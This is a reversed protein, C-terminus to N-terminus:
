LEYCSMTFHKVKIMTQEYAELYGMHATKGLLLLECHQALSCQAMVKEYPTRPDKQGIIFLVPVKSNALSNLGSERKMMGKMAAIIDEKKMQSARTKLVEIQNKLRKQNEEAFLDPIFQTVFGTHNNEIAKIARKRNEIGQEDDALAHSHFFGFGKLQKNHKEAFAATVYGGMSHGIMVVKKIKLGDLVAKVADAMLAMTHVEKISASKGHGPLDVTIVRFYKSLAKEFDKWIEKSEIFGHLLVLVDGSGSDTYCIDKHKFKTIREM